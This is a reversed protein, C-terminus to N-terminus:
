FRVLRKGGHPHYPCKEVATIHNEIIGIVEAGWLRQSGSGEAEIVPSIWGNRCWYDLQRYSCGALRCVEASTLLDTM